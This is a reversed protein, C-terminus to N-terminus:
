AVVPIGLQQAELWTKIALVADLKWKGGDAEFLACSPVDASEGGRVRFVFESSPQTVERFTRYPRLLVRGKVVKSEKLTIGQKVTVKQSIGDDEAITVAEATLSSALRLVEAADVDQVFRSQLAIVFSERDFFTGFVFPAGDDVTVTVLVPRRGYLDSDQKLLAVTTHSNVHLCYPGPTGAGPPVRVGDVGARLLDVLGTLTKLPVCPPGPPVIMSLPRDSYTIGLERTLTPAALSAIKEVFEKLM